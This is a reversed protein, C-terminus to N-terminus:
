YSGGLIRVAVMFSVQVRYRSYPRFIVVFNQDSPLNSEGGVSFSFASLCRTRPSPFISNDRCSHATQMPALLGSAANESPPLQPPIGPASATAAATQALGSIDHNRRDASTRQYEWSRRRRM